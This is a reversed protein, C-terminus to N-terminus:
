GESFETTVGNYHLNLCNNVYLSNESQNTIIKLTPNMNNIIRIGEIQNAPSLFKLIEDFVVVGANTILNRIFDLDVLTKQGRSL